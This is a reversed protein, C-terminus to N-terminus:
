FLEDIGFEAFLRECKELKGPIEQAPVNDGFVLEVVQGALYYVNPDQPHDPDAVAAHLLRSFRM